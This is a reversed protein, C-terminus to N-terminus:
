YPTDTRHSLGGPHLDPPGFVTNQRRVAGTAFSGPVGAVDPCCGRNELAWVGPRQTWRDAPAVRRHRPWVPGLRRTSFSILQNRAFQWVWQSSLAVAM